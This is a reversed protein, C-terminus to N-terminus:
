GDIDIQQARVTLADGPFAEVCLLSTGTYLRWHHNTNFVVLMKGGTENQTIEM